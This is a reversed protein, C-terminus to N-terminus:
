EELERLYPQLLGKNHLKSGLPFHSELLYGMGEHTWVGYALFLDEYETDWVSELLTVALEGKNEITTHSFYSRDAEPQLDLLSYDRAFAATLPVYITLHFEEPRRGAQEGLEDPDLAVHIRLGDPSLQGSSKFEAQKGEPDCILLEVFVGTTVADLQPSSVLPIDLLEELASLSGFNRRRGTPEQLSIGTFYRYEYAFGKRAETLGQIWDEPLPIRRAQLEYRVTAGYSERPFLTFGNINELFVTPRNHSHLYIGLSFGAVTLSLLSLAAALIAVRVAFRNNRQPMEPLKQADLILDEDIQTLADWLAEQKM